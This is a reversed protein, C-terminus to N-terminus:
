LQLLQIFIKFKNLIYNKMVFINQFFLRMMLYPVLYQNKNEEKNLRKYKEVFKKYLESNPKQMYHLVNNSVHEPAVKLQGSIHYKVLERFFTEDKDYYLYDYRIGSRIFVKKVKPLAEVKKLLEIYETHDAILNPCPTPALCKRNACVGHELQKKCAPYRFNATPGGIDHIYGKFDKM